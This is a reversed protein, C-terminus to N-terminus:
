AGIWTPPENITVLSVKRCDTPFCGDNTEGPYPECPTESPKNPANNVDVEEDARSVARYNRDIPDPFIECKLPAGAQDTLVQHQQSEAIPPVFGANLLSLHWGTAAFFQRARLPLSVTEDLRGDVTIGPEPPEYIRPVFCRFGPRRLAM